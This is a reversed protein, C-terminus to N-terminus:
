NKSLEEVDEASLGSLRRAVDFVRELAAASKQSLKHIDEESFVRQGADDVVSLAVIRARVDERHMIQKRGCVEVIQSEFEDRQAGTMGRVLVSGGWEPVSVEETKIDSITLIQDRTLRAM